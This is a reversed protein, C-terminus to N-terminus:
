INTQLDKMKMNNFEPYLSQGNHRNNIDNM